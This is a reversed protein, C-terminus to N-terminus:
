SDKHLPPSVGLFISDHGQRLYDTQIGIDRAVIFMEYVYVSIHMQYFFTQNSYISDLM